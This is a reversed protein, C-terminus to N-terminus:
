PFLYNGNDKINYFYGNIEQHSETSFMLLFYLLFLYNLNFLSNFILYFRFKNNIIFFVSRNMRNITM